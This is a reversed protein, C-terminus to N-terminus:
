DGKICAPPHNNEQYHYLIEIRLEDIKVVDGTRVIQAKDKIKPYIANFNRLTEWDEAGDKSVFTDIDPFNFYVKEFDFDPDNEKVLANFASIHDIHPHTLFWAKIKHGKVKERLLPVDQPRGGDIIVANGEKTLLLYSMMFESTETFVYMKTHQM